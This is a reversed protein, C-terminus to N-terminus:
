FPLIVKGSTEELKKTEKNYVMGEGARPYNEPHKNAKILVIINYICKILHIFMWVMAIVVIVLLLLKLGLSM